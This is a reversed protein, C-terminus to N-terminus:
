KRGYPLDEKQLANQEILVAQIGLSRAAETNEIHDDYFLTKEPELGADNLVYQFCSLNPKRDRIEHSYYTKKFLEGPHSYRSAKAFKENFHRIHISNTNSLIFLNYRDALDEMWRIKEPHIEGLMANWARDLLHPDIDKGALKMLSQRFTDDDILGIEYQEFFGYNKKDQMMKERIDYGFLQSFLDFSHAIDLDIIIGGLDFIINEINNFNM